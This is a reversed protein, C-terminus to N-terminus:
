KAERREILEDLVHAQLGPRVQADVADVVVTVVFDAVAAPRCVLLLGVVACSLLTEGRAQRRSWVKSLPFLVLARLAMQLPHGARTNQVGTPGPGVRGLRARVGQLASRAGVQLLTWGGTGLRLTGFRGTGSRCTKVVRYGEPFAAHASFKEATVLVESNVGFGHNHDGVKPPDDNGEPLGATQM